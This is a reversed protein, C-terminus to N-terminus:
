KTILGMAVAQSLPLEEANEMAKEFFGLEGLRLLEPNVRFFKAGDQTKSIMYATGGDTLFVKAIYKSGHDHVEIWETSMYTKAKM